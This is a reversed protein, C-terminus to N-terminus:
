WKGEKICARSAIFTQNPKLIILPEKSHIKRLSIEEETVKVIDYGMKQIGSFLTIKQNNIWVTWTKEDVYFIAALYLNIPPQGQTQVSSPQFITQLDQPNKQIKWVHKTFFLAGLITMSLFGFFGCKYMFNKCSFMDFNSLKLMRFKSLHHRKIYSIVDKKLDQIELVEQVKDPIDDGALTKIYILPLNEESFHYQRKMYHSFSSVQRSYDVKTVPKKITRLHRINGNLFLMQKLCEDWPMLLIFSDIKKLNKKFFRQAELIFSTLRINIGKQKLILLWPKISHVDQFAVGVFFHDNQYSKLYMGGFWSERPFKVDLYNKLLLKQDFFSSVPLVGGELIDDEYDMLITIFSVYNLTVKEKLELPTKLYSREELRGWRYLFIEAGEKQLILYCKYPIGYFFM